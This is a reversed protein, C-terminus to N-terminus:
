VQFLRFNMLNDINFDICYYFIVVIIEKNVINLSIIRYCYM